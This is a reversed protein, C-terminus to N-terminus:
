FSLIHSPKAGENRIDDVSSNPLVKRSLAIRINTGFISIVYEYLTPYAQYLHSIANVELGVSELKMM